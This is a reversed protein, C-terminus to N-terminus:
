RCFRSCARARNTSYMWLASTTGRVRLFVLGDDPARAARSRSLSCVELFFCARRSSESSQRSPQSILPTMVENNAQYRSTESIRWSMWCPADNGTFNRRIRRPCSEPVSTVRTQTARSSFNTFPPQQEALAMNEAAYYNVIMSQAGPAHVCRGQAQRYCRRHRRCGRQCDTHRSISSFGHWRTFCQYWLCNCCRRSARKFRLNAPLDPSNWGLDATLSNLAHKAASYASRVPALPVRGLMSSMNIIHGQGRERFHPLVAQMGYLPAKVNVSMMADFDEDTLESVLRTIGRGANNVWVDIHGLQSIATQVAREVETRRTVDTALLLPKNKLRAAVEALAKERRALMVVRAGLGDVLEALAAGIGASAGTIAIVKDQM